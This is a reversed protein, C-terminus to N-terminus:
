ETTFEVPERNRRACIRRITGVFAHATRRLGARRVATWSRYGMVRTTPQGTVAMGAHRAPHSLKRPLHDRHMRDLEEVTMPATFLYGAQVAERLLRQGTATRVVTVNIGDAEEHIPQGNTMLWGDPASLDACEGIADPCLKCRWQLDYPRTWSHPAYWTEDYSMDFADGVTNVVRTPGPWGDGRWQFRAVERHAIGHHAAIKEATHLSQVGGCFFTLLYPVQKDVRDDVKALNRLASIDCPKAVVAFRLGADLMRAVRVLPAAPGYRSKAASLVDDSCHSVVADDLMPDTRSARVHVVADVEARDLLYQALATLTGGAAALHRVAPDAAWTRHLEAIPGWVPHHPIADRRQPGTVTAGPCAALLQPSVAVDGDRAFRPRAFGRDSIAMRIEGPNAM